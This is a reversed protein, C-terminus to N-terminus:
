EIYTFIEDGTIEKSENFAKECEDLSCDGFDGRNSPVEIFFCKISGFTKAYVYQRFTEIKDFADRDLAFYLKKIRIQIM